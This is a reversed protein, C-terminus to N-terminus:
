ACRSRQFHDAAERAADRRSLSPPDPPETGGCCFRRGFQQNLGGVVGVLIGATM